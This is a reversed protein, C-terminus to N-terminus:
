RTTPPASIQTLCHDPDPVTRKERLEKLRDLTRMVAADTENRARATAMLYDALTDEYQANSRTLCEVRELILTRDRESKELEVTSRHQEFSTYVIFFMMFVMLAVSAYAMIRDSKRRGVTFPRPPRLVGGVYAKPGFQPIMVDPPRSGSDSDDTM